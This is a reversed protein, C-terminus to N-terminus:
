ADEGGDVDDGGGVGFPGLVHHVHMADHSYVNTHLERIEPSEAIM